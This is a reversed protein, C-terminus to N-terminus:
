DEAKKQMLEIIKDLKENLESVMKPIDNYNPNEKIGVINKQMQTFPNKNLIPLEGLLLYNLNVEPFRTVIKQSLETSLNNKGSLVHYTTGTSVGLEKALSSANYRIEKLVNALIVSDEIKKM